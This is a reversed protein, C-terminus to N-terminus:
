SFDVSLMLEAGVWALVPMLVALGSFIWLQAPKCPLQLLL